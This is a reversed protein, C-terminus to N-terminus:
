PTLLEINIPNYKIKFEFNLKNSSIYPLFDFERSVSISLSEPNFFWGKQVDRPVLKGNLFVQLTNLDPIEDLYLEKARLISQLNDFIGALNKGWLPDCISVWLGKTKEILSYIHFPYQFYEAGVGEAGLVCAGSNKQGSSYPAISAYARINRRNEMVSDLLELMNESYIGGVRSLDRSSSGANSIAIKFGLDDGGWADSLFLLILIKDRGFFHNKFDKDANKVIYDISSFFPETGGDGKINEVTKGLMCTFADHQRQNILDKSSYHLYTGINVTRFFKSFEVDVGCDSFYESTVAIPKGRLMSQISKHPSMTTIAFNYNYYSYNEFIPKLFLDVNQSLTRRYSQMSGSADIVFLFSITNIFDIDGVKVIIEKNSKLYTTLKGSNECSSFIFVFLFYALLNKMSFIFPPFLGFFIDSKYFM